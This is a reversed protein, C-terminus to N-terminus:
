FFSMPINVIYAIVLGGFLPTVAYLLTLALNEIRSRYYILIFVVFLLVGIKVYRSKAKRM